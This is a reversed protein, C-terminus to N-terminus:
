LFEKFFIAFALSILVFIDIPKKISISSLLDDKTIIKKGDGFHAKKIMKGHYSTDGGLSLDCVIAMAAIPYGANPSSHKKAFFYLKSFDFRANLIMILLATFRSPLLNLLDDTKASFYGFNKYRKTKYGVMSDLTNVVKYFVIGVFGFFMLYFLPAIVGDSLNEAYTEILAKNIESENLDKTDRSVLYSLAERQDKASLVDKVSNYLMHHALFMASLIAELWFPLFLTLWYALTGFLVLASFLLFFGAVKSDSFFNREYWKIYDGFLTVPHRIFRFEGFLLDIVYAFFTLEYYM